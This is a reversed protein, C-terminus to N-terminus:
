HAAVTLRISTGLVWTYPVKRDSRGTDALAEWKEISVVQNYNWNQQAVIRSREDCGVVKRAGEEHLQCSLQLFVRCLGAQRTTDSNTSPVQDIPDIKGTPAGVPSQSIPGSARCYYRCYRGFGSALVFIPVRVASCQVASCWAAGRQVMRSRSRSEISCASRSLKVVMVVM